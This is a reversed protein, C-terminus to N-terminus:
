SPPAEDNFRRTDSVRSPEYNRPQAAGGYINQEGRVAMMQHRAGVIMHRSSMVRTLKNM